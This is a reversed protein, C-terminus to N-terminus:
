SRQSGPGQPQSLDHRKIKLEEGKLLRRINSEHRVLVFIAAILGFGVYEAPAGLLKFAVPVAIGGLMSGVSSYGTLLVALGWVAACILATYPSLAMVVGLSTAVGKGGKFRFFVSWNHGVIAAMGALVVWLPTFGLRSAALVPVAGKLVDAALVLIALSLGGIRYVNITGINGSGYQRIDLGKLARVVLFGVPVAGVLYSAAILALSM